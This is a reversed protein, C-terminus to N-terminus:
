LKNAFVRFNSGDNIANPPLDWPSIDSSIGGEGLSRVNLIAM